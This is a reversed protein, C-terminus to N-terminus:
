LLAAVRADAVSDVMVGDRTREVSLAHRFSFSVRLGVSRWARTPDVIPGIAGRPTTYTSTNTITSAPGTQSLRHHRTPRRQRRGGSDTTRRAQGDI